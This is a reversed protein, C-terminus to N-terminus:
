KLIIIKSTLLNIIFLPNHNSLQTFNKIHGKERIFILTFLWKQGQVHLESIFIDM